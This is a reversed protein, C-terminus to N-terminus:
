KLLAHSLVSAVPAEDCIVIDWPLAEGSRALEGAPLEVEFHARPPMLSRWSMMHLGLEGHFGAVVCLPESAIWMRARLWAM